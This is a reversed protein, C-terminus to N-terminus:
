VKQKYITDKGVTEKKFAKSSSSSFQKQRVRQLGISWLGDRKERWPCSNPIPQGKRRWLIKRVWPNFGHRKQRRFQCAPEKGSTGGPSIWCASVGWIDRSELFGRGGWLKQRQLLCSDSIKNKFQDTKAILSM